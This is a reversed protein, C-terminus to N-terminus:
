GFNANSSWFSQHIELSAQAAQELRRITMGSAGAARAFGIIEQKWSPQGGTLEEFFAPLKSGLREVDRDIREQFFRRCLPTPQFGRVAFLALRLSLRQDIAVKRPDTCIELTASRCDAFGRGTPDVIGTDTRWYLANVTFDTTRADTQLNGFQWSVTSLSDHGEISEIDRFMGIDFHDQPGGLRLSGIAENYISISEAGCAEGVLQAIASIHADAVIDLDRAPQGRISDRVAGGAVFATIESGELLRFIEAATWERGKSDRIRREMLAMLRDSIQPPTSPM